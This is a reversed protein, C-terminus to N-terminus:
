REIRVGFVGKLFIYGVKKKKNTNPNAISQRATANSIRVGGKGSKTPATKEDGPPEDGGSGSTRGGPPDDDPDDDNDTDEIWLINDLEIGQEVDYCVTEKNDETLNYYLTILGDYLYVSNLFTDFIRERFEPDLPNGTTFMKLWVMIGEVTLKIGCANRQKALDIHLDDLQVSLAATKENIRQRIISGKEAEIFDDALKNIEREIRTIKLELDKVIDNNFEKDYQAVVNEAIMKMRKPKRVHKITQEAVYWELFDKEETRKDCTHFRKKKGCSYYNYIKGSKSTGADGVLKTGCHGCYGKGQLQYDVRAKETAPAHKVKTIRAQVKYFTDEDIIAPYSDPSLVGNFINKGIYKTNMMANQFATLGFPKGNTNRYGRRNIEDIIKKKPTGAAYENFIYRVVAAKDEDTVVRKDVVKYGFLIYGGTFTGKEVSMKLGRKVKQSLELSYYEASGELVAELIVGEPSDSIQEMASLVKVNNQRLKYKYTASDYRNRAFRDLKYVIVYQFQKKRSDSILKQFQPREDTKGSIARDIYENIVKYGERAAYDYCVRLQGEISQETQSHSSYRAYIVANQM